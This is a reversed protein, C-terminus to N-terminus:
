FCLNHAKCPQDRKYSLSFQNTNDLYWPVLRSNRVNLAHVTLAVTWSWRWNQIVQCYSFRNQRFWRKELIRKPCNSHKDHQLLRSLFKSFWVFFIRSGTRYFKKDSWFNTQEVWNYKLSIYLFQYVFGSTNLMNALNKSFNTNELAKTNARTLLKQRGFFLCWHM